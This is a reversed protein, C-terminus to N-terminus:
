RAAAAEGQFSEGVLAVCEDCIAVGAGAPGACLRKVQGRKKGCFFCRRPRPLGAGTPDITVPTEQGLYRQRAAFREDPNGGPHHVTVSWV